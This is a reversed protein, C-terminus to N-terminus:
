LYYFIKMSQCGIVSFHYSRDLKLKEDIAIVKAHHSM